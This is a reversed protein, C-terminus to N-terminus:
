IYEKLYLLNFALYPAWFDTFRVSILPLIYMCRFALNPRLLPGWQSLDSQLPLLPILAGAIRSNTLWLFASCFTFCLITWTCSSNLHFTEAHVTASNHLTRFTCIIYSRLLFMVAKLPFSSMKCQVAALAFSSTLSALCEMRRRDFFFFFM